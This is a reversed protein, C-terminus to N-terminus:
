DLEGRKELERVLEAPCDVVIKGPKQNKSDSASFIVDDNM